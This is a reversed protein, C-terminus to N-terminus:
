AIDRRLASGHRLLSDTRSIPIDEDRTADHWEQLYRDRLRLYRAENGDKKVEHDKLDFCALEAQTVKTSKTADNWSFSAIPRHGIRKSPVGTTITCSRHSEEIRGKLVPKRGDELEISWEHMIYSQM